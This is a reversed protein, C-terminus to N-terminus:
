NNFRCVLRWVKTLGLILLSLFIEQPMDPPVFEQVSDVAENDQKDHKHFGHSLELDENDM